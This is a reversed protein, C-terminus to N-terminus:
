SKPSVIKKCSFWHGQGWKEDFYGTCRVVAGNRHTYRRVLERRGETWRSGLANLSVKPLLHPLKSVVLDLESDTLSEFGQGQLLTVIAPSDMFRDLITCHSVPGINNFYVPATYLLRGTPLGVENLLDRMTLGGIERPKM